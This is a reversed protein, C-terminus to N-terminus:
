GRRREEPRLLLVEPTSRVALAFRVHGGLDLLPVALTLISEGAHNRNFQYTKHYISGRM